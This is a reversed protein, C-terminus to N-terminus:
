LLNINNCITLKEDSKKACHCFSYISAINWKDKSVIWHFTEKIRKMAQSQILDFM